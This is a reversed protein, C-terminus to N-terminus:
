PWNSFRTPRALERKRGKCGENSFPILGSSTINLLVCWNAGLEITYGAFTQSKMRGGLENRAEVIVFNDIGREHLTRAAIVGAVGGGLILVRPNSSGNNRPFASGSVSAALALSATLVVM